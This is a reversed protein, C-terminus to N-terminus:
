ERDPKVIELWHAVSVGEPATAKLQLVCGSCGTLLLDGPCPNFFDWCAGAVKRSLKPAALQMVGGMGCCTGSSNKILKKDIARKLWTVDFDGESGHCPRHYHVRDPANPLLEFATEGWMSALPTIATRWSEQEGEEWDLGDSDAYVSLGHRCTACFVVIMPRGAKRWVDVNKQRMTAQVDKLGAHGLTFGCCTWEPEELLHYGLGTTIARAKALWDNRVHSALCGPYLVAPKKEARADYQRVSLWPQITQRRDMAKMQRLMPTLRKGPLAGPTLRALSAMAPWLLSGKNIWAKWLWQRFDPHAARLVGVAGAADLGQPCAKACKGCALCLAALDTAARASLRGPDGEMAQSLYHKARPSLEERGTLQFLPCVEHCRGCLICEKKM